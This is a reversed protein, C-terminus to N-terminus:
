APHHQEAWAHEAIASMETEGGITASQHEKIRAGLARKTGGIYEKGHSCPVMYVVGPKSLRPDVDKVRTLQQRLISITTFMTWIDVQQM